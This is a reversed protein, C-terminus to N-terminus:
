EAEKAKELAEKAERAEKAKAAEIEAIIDSPERGNAHARLAPCWDPVVISDSMGRPRKYGPWNCSHNRKLDVPLGHFQCGQCVLITEKWLSPSPGIKQNIM